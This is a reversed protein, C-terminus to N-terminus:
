LPSFGRQNFGYPSGKRFFKDGVQGSFDVQFFNVIYNGIMGFAIVTASEGFQHLV